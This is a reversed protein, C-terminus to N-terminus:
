KIAVQQIEAKFSLSASWSVARTMALGKEISVSEFCLHDTGHLTNNRMVRFILIDSSFCPSFLERIQLVAIPIPSKVSERHTVMSPQHHLILPAIFLWTVLVHHFQGRLNSSVLLFCKLERLIGRMKMKCFDVRHRGSQTFVRFILKMTSICQHRCTTLVNEDDDVDVFRWLDEISQFISSTTFMTKSSGTRISGQIGGVNTDWLTNIMAAFM